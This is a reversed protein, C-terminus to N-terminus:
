PPCSGSGVNITLGRSVSGPGSGATILGVQKAVV